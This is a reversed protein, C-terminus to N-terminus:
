RPSGPFLLDVREANFYGRLDPACLGPSISAKVLNNFRFIAIFKQSECEIKVPLELSRLRRAFCLHLGEQGLATFISKTIKFALGFPTHEIIVNDAAPFISNESKERPSSTPKLVGDVAAAAAAAGQVAFLVSTNVKGCKGLKEYGTLATVSEVLNAPRMLADAICGESWL